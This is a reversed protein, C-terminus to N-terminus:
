GAKNRRPEEPRARITSYLARRNACLSFFSPNNITKKEKKNGNRFIIHLKTSVFKDVNDV